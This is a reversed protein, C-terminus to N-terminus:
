LSAALMPRERSRRIHAFSTTITSLLEVSSVSAMAPRKKLTRVIWRGNSVWAWCHRKAISSVPM